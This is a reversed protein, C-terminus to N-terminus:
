IQKKDCYFTSRGGQTIRKISTKCTCNPCKEGEKGYVAFNHQFYGLSGDSQKYDRLTSGGSEIAELLVDKLSKVLLDAEKKNLDGAARLPSIKARFLAECDYINGIGAVIRQDLLAQKINTKRGKLVERLYDGTFEDSLPEVGIHALSKHTNLQNASVVDVLGFRRADNFVLVGKDTSIIVHDHKELAEPMSDFVTMRGSMGLHAIIVNHKSPLSGGEVNILLYKARRDFSNIRGGALKSIAKPIPIRMDFRRVKISLIEAGTLKAAIGNKVTEVEPLEPM